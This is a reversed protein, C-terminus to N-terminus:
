DGRTAALGREASLLNEKAELCGPDIELARQSHTISFEYLECVLYIYGLQLHLYANDPEVELAANLVAGGDEPRDMKIYAASLNLCANVDGKNFAVAKEWVFVASEQDKMHAYLCGIKFLLDKQGAFVKQAKECNFRVQDYDGRARAKKALRYFVLADDEGSDEDIM